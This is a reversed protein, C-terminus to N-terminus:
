TSKTLSQCHPTTSPVCIVLPPPAFNMSKAADGPIITAESGTYILRAYVRGDIKMEIYSEWGTEDQIPTGAATALGTDATATSARAIPLEVDLNTM